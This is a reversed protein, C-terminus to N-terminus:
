HELAPHPGSPRLAPPTSLAHLEPMLPAPPDVLLPVMALPNM